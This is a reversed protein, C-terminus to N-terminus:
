VNQECLLIRLEFLIIETLERKASQDASFLVELLFSYEFEKKSVFKLSTEVFNLSAEVFTM